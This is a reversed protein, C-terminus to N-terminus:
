EVAELLARRIRALLVLAATVSLVLEYATGGDTEVRVRVDRM